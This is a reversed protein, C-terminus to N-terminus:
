HGSFHAVLIFPSFLALSIPGVCPGTKFHSRLTDRDRPQQIRALPVTLPSAVGKQQVDISDTGVAVVSGKVKSHDILVLKVRSGVAYTPPPAAYAVGSAAMASLFILLFLYLTRVRFPLTM